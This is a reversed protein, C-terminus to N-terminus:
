LFMELNADPEILEHMCYDWYAVADRIVDEPQNDQELFSEIWDILRQRPASRIADNSDDYIIERFDSLTDEELLLDPQFYLTINAMLSLSLLLIPDVAISFPPDVSFVDDLPLAEAYVQRKEIYELQQHIIEMDSLSSLTRPLHNNKITVQASSITTKYSTLEDLFEAEAHNYIRINDIDLHSLSDPPIILAQELINGAKEILKDTLTNGIQYFKVIPNAILLQVSKDLNGKSGYELGLSTLAFCTQIQARLDSENSLDTVKMTILKHAVAAIDDSLEDIKESDFKGLTDGHMFTRALYSRGDIEAGAVLSFKSTQM